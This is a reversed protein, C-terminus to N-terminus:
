SWIDGWEYKSDGQYTGDNGSLGSTTIVEQTLLIMVEIDPKRYESKM